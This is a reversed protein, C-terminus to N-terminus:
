RGMVYVSLIGEESLTCSDDGAGPTGEQELLCACTADLGECGEPLPKCTFSSMPGGFGTDIGIGQEVCYDGLSQCTQDGCEFTTDEVCQITYGCSSGDPFARPGSGEACSPAADCVM